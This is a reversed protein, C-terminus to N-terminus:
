SLSLMTMLTAIVFKRKYSIYYFLWWPLVAIIVSAFINLGAHIYWFPPNTFCHQQPKTHDWNSSIDLGCHFVTAISCAVCYGAIYVIMIQCFRNFLLMQNSSIALLLLCTAIKSIGAAFKYFVQYLYFM